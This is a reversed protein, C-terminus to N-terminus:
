TSRGKSLALFAEQVWKKAAHEDEEPEKAVLDAFNKLTVDPLALGAGRALKRVENYLRQRRDPGELSVQRLPVFGPGSLVWQPDIDFVERVAALAWVPPLNTGNEWSLIQRRSYGIRDAFQQQTLGAHERALRLRRALGEADRDVIHKGIAPHSFSM